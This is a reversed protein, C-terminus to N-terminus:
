DVKLSELDHGDKIRNTAFTLFNNEEKRVTAGSFNDGHWDASFSQVRAFGEDTMERMNGAALVIWFRNSLNHLLSAMLYIGVFLGWGNWARDAASPGAAVADVMRGAAWPMALDFGVASLTAVGTAALLWPRRMWYASIFGLVQRNSLVRSAAEDVDEYHDTM